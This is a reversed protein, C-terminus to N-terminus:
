FQLQLQGEINRKHTSCGRHGIQTDLGIGDAAKRGAEGGLVNTVRCRRASTKLKYGRKEIISRNAEEEMVYHSRLAPLTNGSCVFEINSESQYKREWIREVLRRSCAVKFSNEFPNKQWAPANLVDERALRRITSIFYHVMLKTVLINHPKGVLNHRIGIRGSREGDHDYISSYFYQCFNLGATAHWVSRRWPDNIGDRENSDVIRGEQDDDRVNSIDPLSINHEALLKHAKKMAQEAEFETAGGNALSLLKRIRVIVKNTRDNSIRM